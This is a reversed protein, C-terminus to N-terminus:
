NVGRRFETWNRSNKALAEIEEYSMGNKFAQSVLPRAKAADFYNFRNRMIGCIYSIQRQREAEQPNAKFHCIRPIMSIFHEVSATTVKDNEDFHLYQIASDGISEIILKLDYKALLGKILHEGNANLTSTFLYENVLEVLYKGAAEREKKLSDRWRMIMELQELKTQQSSLEKMQAQVVADDSLAKDRKGSNCSFCSTVLNLIDNAGGLAVPNIHDVQLEVNPAQAGCYQCTFSDRKFVEFRVKKSIAQRKPKQTEKSM